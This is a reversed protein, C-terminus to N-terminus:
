LRRRDAPDGSDYLRRRRPWGLEVPPIATFLPGPFDGPTGIGAMRIAEDTALRASPSSSTAATTRTSSTSPAPSPPACISPRSAPSGSSAPGAPSWRRGTRTSASASRPSSASAPSRSSRAVAPIGSRRLWRLRRARSREGAAGTGHRRGAVVGMCQGPDGGAGRDGGARLRHRRGAPLVREAVAGARRAGGDVPVDGRRLRRAHQAAGRVTDIAGAAKLGALWDREERTPRLVGNAGSIVALAPRRSGQPADRVARRRDAAAQGPERRSRGSLVTGLRAYPTKGRKEAHERAELVLFAGVSGMMAGGGKEPRAWVSVPDGHWAWGAGALVLLVDKREALVAGGVLFIDGQDAAIRRAAIEVASVSPWNRAWSPARRAPSRTSSPSTAPSSTPFSPWSSRRASTTPSGSTSSSRRGDPAAGVGELITQDVMLDREGGAPPSWWTPTPSSTSTAPSAPMTSRSAPPIPASGSGTRWRAATAARRSRSRSTSRCWRTSPTPRSARRPRRGAAAPRRRAMAQWHADTGEGLSSTLGIGTIWVERAM